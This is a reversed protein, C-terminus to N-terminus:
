SKNQDPYDTIPKLASAFESSWEAEMRPRSIERALMEVSETIGSLNERLDRNNVYIESRFEKIAGVVIKASQVMAYILIACVAVALQSISTSIGRPNSPLFVIVGILTLTVIIGIVLKNM